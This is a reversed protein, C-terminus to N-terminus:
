FFSKPWYSSITKTSPFYSSITDAASSVGGALSTTAKSCLRYTDRIVSMTTVLTVLPIAIAVLKVNEYLSVEEFEGTERSMKEDPIAISKAAAIADVVEGVIGTYNYNHGAVFSYTVNASAFTLALCCLLRSITKAITNFQFDSM